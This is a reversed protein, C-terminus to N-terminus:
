NSKEAALNALIQAVSLGATGPGLDDNDAARRRRRSVPVGPPPEPDYQAATPAAEHAGGAPEDAPEDAVEAWETEDDRDAHEDLRIAATEATVPDDDPSAFRPVNAHTGTGYAPVPAIPEPQEPQLEDPQGAGEATGTLEALRISEARLALREAPLEGDFLIELNRRLAALETRLGALEEADIGVERRVRTEVGLEYERRASVERELQLRYVTQLDDVKAKDLDSERRYRTMAFAAIVAAWVAAMLGLRLLEVSDSFVLFGTAIVGLLILVGPIM